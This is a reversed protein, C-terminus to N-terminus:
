RWCRSLDLKENLDDIIERFKALSSPKTGTSASRTDFYQSTMILVERRNPGWMPESDLRRAWGGLGPRAMVVQLQSPSNYGLKEALAQKVDAVTPRGDSTVIASLEESNEDSIVKFSFATQRNKGSKVPAPNQPEANEEQYAQHQELKTKVANKTSEISQKGPRVPYAWEVAGGHRVPVQSIDQTLRDFIFGDITPPMSEVKEMLRTLDKGEFEHRAARVLVAKLAHKMQVVGRMDDKFGYKRLIHKLETVTFHTFGRVYETVGNRAAKAILKAKHQQFNEKKYVKHMDALMALAQAESLELPQVSMTYDILFKLTDPSSSEDDMGVQIDSNSTMQEVAQDLGIDGASNVTGVDTSPQKRENVKAPTDENDDVVQALLSSSTQAVFQNNRSPKWTLFGHITPPLFELQLLTDWHNSMATHTEADCTSIFDRLATKMQLIGNSDNNFGYVPLINSKELVSVTLKTVEEGLGREMAENISKQVNKKRYIAGLETLMPLVRNETM